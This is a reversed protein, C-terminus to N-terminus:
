KIDFDKKYHCQKVWLESLILPNIVKELTNTRFYVNYCSQLESKSYVIDSDLVNVVLGRHSWEKFLKM